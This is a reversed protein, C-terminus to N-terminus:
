LRGLKLSAHLRCGHDLLLVFFNSAVMLGSGVNIIVQEFLALACHLRAIQRIFLVAFLKTYVIWWVKRLTRGKWLFRIEKASSRKAAQCDTETNQEKESHHIFGDM